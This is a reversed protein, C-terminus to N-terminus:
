NGQADTAFVDTPTPNATTSLASRDVIVGYEADRFSPDPLLRFQVPFATNETRRLALSSGEFSVMRRAHYLRQRYLADGIEGEGVYDGTSSVDSATLIYPDAKSIVVLSREIPDSGPVGISFSKVDGSLTQKLYEDAVGWAFLLNELTAEALNTSLTANITQNFLIIADKVQDVEVEGYDPTYNLEVGEQTAGLYNWSEAGGGSSEDWFFDELKVAARSTSNITVSPATFDPLATGTPAWFLEGPGVLVNQANVSNAM